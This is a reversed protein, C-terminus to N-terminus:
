LHGGKMNVWQFWSALQKVCGALRLALCRRHLVLLLLLRKLLYWSVEGEEACLRCLINQELIM